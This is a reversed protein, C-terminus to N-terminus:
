IKKIVGKGRGYNFGIEDLDIEGREVKMEKDNNVEVVENKREIKKIGEEVNGINELM